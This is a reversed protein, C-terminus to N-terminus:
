TSPWLDPRLWAGFAVGALCIVWVVVARVGPRDRREMAWEACATIGQDTRFGRGGHRAPLLLVAMVAVGTVRVTLDRAFSGSAADVIVRETAYGIAGVAVAPLARAMAVVLNRVFRVPAVVGVGASHWRRTGAGTRRRYRHVVVDGVSALGPLVVLAVLVGLVFPAASALACLAIGVPWTVSGRHRAPPGVM